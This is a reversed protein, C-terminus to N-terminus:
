LFFVFVCRKPFAFTLSKKLFFNNKVKFIINKLLIMKFSKELFNNKLKSAKNKLVIKFM